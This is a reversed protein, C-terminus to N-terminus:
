RPFRLSLSWESTGPRSPFIINSHINSFHSPHCPCSQDPEPCPRARTFVTIFRRTGCFTTFKRVLQSVALKESLGRSWPTLLYWLHVSYNPCCTAYYYYYCCCCVSRADSIFHSANLPVPLHFTTCCLLVRQVRFSRCFENSLNPWKLASYERHAKWLM